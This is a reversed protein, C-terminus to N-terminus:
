LLSWSGARGRARGGGGAGDTDRRGDGGADRHEDGRRCSIDAEGPARRRDARNRRSRIPQFVPPRRGVADTRHYFYRRLKLRSGRLQDHRAPAFPRWRDDGPAFARRGARSWRQDCRCVSSQPGIRNDRFGQQRVRGGDALGVQWPWHDFYPAHNESKVKATETGTERRLGRHYSATM